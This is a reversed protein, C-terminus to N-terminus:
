NETVASRGEKTSLDYVLGGKTAFYKSRRLMSEYLPPGMAVIAKDRSVVGNETFVASFNVAELAKNWQDASWALALKRDADSWVTDERVNRKAVSRAEKYLAEADEASILGVAVGTSVLIDGKWLLEEVAAKGEPTRLDFIKEGVTLLFTSHAVMHRFLTDDMVGEFRDKQVVGNKIFRTLFDTGSLASDWEDTSWHQAEKVSASDWVAGKAFCSTATREAKALRDEMEKQTLLGARVLTKLSVKGESVGEYLLKRGAPLSALVVESGVETLMHAREVMLGFTETGMQKKLLQIDLIGGEVFSDFQVTDIFADWQEPIWSLVTNREEEGWEAEKKLHREAFTVASHHLELAENQTFIDAKILRALTVKGEYLAKELLAIGPNTDADLVQDEVQVLNLARETMRNILQEPMDAKHLKAIQVVGGSTFNKSFNSYRLAERWQDPAWHMAEDAEEESWESDDKMCDSFTSIADQMADDAKEGPLIGANVLTELPLTGEQLARGLIKKGDSTDADVIKGELIVVHPCHEMLLLYGQLGIGKVLTDTDVLGGQTYHRIFSESAVYANWQDTSWHEADGSTFPNQEKQMPASMDGFYVMLPPIPSANPRARARARAM